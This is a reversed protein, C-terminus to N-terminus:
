PSALVWIRLPTSPLEQLAQPIRQCHAAQSPKPHAITASDQTPPAPKMTRNRPRGLPRASAVSINIRAQQMAHNCSIDLGARM